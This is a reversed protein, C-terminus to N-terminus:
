AGVIELAGVCWDQGNHEYYIIYYGDSLEPIDGFYKTTGLDMRLGDYNSINLQLEITNLITNDIEDATPLQFSIGGSVDFRYVKNTELKSTKNENIQVQSLVNFMNEVQEATTYGNSQVLGMVGSMFRPTNPYANLAQEVAVGSQANKSGPNYTQDVEATGGQGADGKDGKPGKKWELNNFTNVGDGIKLWEGDIGDSVIAPEGKELVPNINQWNELTDSRFAYRANLFIKDSM